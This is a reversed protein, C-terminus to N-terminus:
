KVGHRKFNYLYKMLFIDDSVIVLVLILYLMKTYFFPLEPTDFFILYLQAIWNSVSTNIYVVLSLDNIESEYKLDLKRISLRGNVLYAFLSYCAYTIIPRVLNIMAFDYYLIYFYFVQVTIHHINTSIHNKRNYILAAMDVSTYLAAFISVQYYNVNEPYFLINNLLFFTPICLFGLLSSKVLNVIRYKVTLIDTEDSINKVLETDKNKLCYATVTGEFVNFIGLFGALSILYLFM